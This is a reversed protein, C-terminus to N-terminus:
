FNRSDNMCSSPDVPIFFACKFASKKGENKEEEIKDRRLLGVYIFGHSLNPRRQARYRSGAEARFGPGRRPM